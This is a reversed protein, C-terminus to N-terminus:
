FRATVYLQPGWYDYKYEGTLHPKDAEVKSTSPM